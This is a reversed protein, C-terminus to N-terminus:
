GFQNGRKVYRDRLTIYAAAYGYCEYKVLPIFVKADPIRGDLEDASLNVQSGGFLYIADEPHVFDDLPQDGQIYKGEPPALVILPRDLPLETCTEIRVVPQYIAGDPDELGLAWIETVGFNSFVWSWQDQMWGRRESQFTV